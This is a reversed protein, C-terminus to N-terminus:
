NIYTSNRMVCVAMAIPILPKSGDQAQNFGRQRSSLVIKILRKGGLGPWYRVKQFWPFSKM